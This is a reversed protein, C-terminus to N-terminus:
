MPTCALLWASSALVSGLPFAAAEAWEPATGWIWFQMGAEWFIGLATWLVALLASAEVPHSRASALGLLPSM